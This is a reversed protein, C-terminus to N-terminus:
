ASQRRYRSPSVGALRTFTSTLHSQDFFGCALAVDAIPLTTGRLMTKAQELRLWILYQQPSQGCSAKFARGFRHPGLGSLDALDSVAIREHLHSECYERIRALMRAPLRGRSSQGARSPVGDASRLLRCILTSEISDAFARGLVDGRQTEAWAHRCLQNLFPDRFARECLAGLHAGANGADAAVRQFAAESVSIMLHRQEATLHLTAAVHPPTIPAFMGPRLWESHWRDDIRYSLRAEGGLVLCIKYDPAPAEHVDASPM